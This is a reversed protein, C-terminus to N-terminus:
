PTDEGSLEAFAPSGMLREVIIDAVIRHGQANWHHDRGVNHIEPREPKPAIFAIEAGHTAFAERIRERRSGEPIQAAVGFVPWGRSACEDLCADLLAFTLDDYPVTEAQDDPPAADLLARARSGENTLLAKASQKLVAYIRSYPLLPVSEVIEQAQRMASQPPVDHSVLAGDEGLTYLGEAHNDRFDNNCIQLVVFRPAFAEADRRLFRLWRGQGNGAIGANVVPVDRGPLREELARRVLDPFEQGDDLTDGLTYSDGLFLVAHEPHEDPEPGRFGLSNITLHYTIGNATVAGSYGPKLRKAYVPDYRVASPGVIDRSVFPRAAVEAVVLVVISVIATFLIKLRLSPGPGRRANRPAQPPDGSPM